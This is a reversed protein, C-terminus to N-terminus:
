FFTVSRATTGPKGPIGTGAAALDAVQLATMGDDWQMSILEKRQWSKCWVGNGVAEM